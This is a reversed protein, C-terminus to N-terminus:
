ARASRSRSRSRATRSRARARRGSSSLVPAGRRASSRMQGGFGRTRAPSRARQAPTWSALTGVTLGQMDGRRRPDRRGEPMRPAHRTPSSRRSTPPSGEEFKEAADDALKTRRDHPDLHRGRRSRIRASAGRPRGEPARERGGRGARARRVAQHDRRGRRDAARVPRPDQRGEREDARGPPPQLKEDARLERCFQYGNMRPMVFDLLVLDIEGQACGRSGPRATAATSPEYGHRELIASVVKRITPSDDVVLVRAGMRVPDRDQASM